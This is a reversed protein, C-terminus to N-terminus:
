RLVWGVLLSGGWLFPVLPWWRGWQHQVTNVVLMIVAALLLGAGFALVGGFWGLGLGLLAGYAADGTGWAGRTTVVLSIGIVAMVGFGLLGTTWTHSALRWALLGFFGGGLAAEPLARWRWDAWTLIGGLLALGLWAPSM